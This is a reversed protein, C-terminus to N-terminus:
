RDARFSSVSLCNCMPLNDTNFSNSEEDKFDEKYNLVQSALKIGM